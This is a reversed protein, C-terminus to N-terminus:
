SKIGSMAARTALDNVREEPTEGEEDGVLPVDGALQDAPVITDANVSSAYNSLDVPHILQEPKYVGYGNNALYEVLEVMPVEERGEDMVRAMFDQIAYVLDAQNEVLIIEDIRM